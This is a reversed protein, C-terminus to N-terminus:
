GLPMSKIVKVRSIKKLSRQTRICRTNKKPHTLTSPNKWCLESAEAWHHGRGNKLTLAVGKGSVSVRRWLLNASSHYPPSSIYRILFLRPIYKVTEGCGTKSGVGDLGSTWEQENLTIAKRSGPGFAWINKSGWMRYLGQTGDTHILDKPGDFWLLQEIFCTCITVHFIFTHQM